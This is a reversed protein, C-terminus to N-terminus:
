WQHFNFFFLWLLSVLEMVVLADFSLTPQRIQTSSMSLISGGRRKYCLPRHSHHSQGFFCATGKCHAQFWCEYYSYLLAAVYNHTYDAHLAQRETYCEVVHVLEYQL